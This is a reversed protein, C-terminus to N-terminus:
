YHGILRGRVMVCADPSSMCGGPGMHNHQSPHPAMPLGNEDTDVLVRGDYSVYQYCGECAAASELRRATPGYAQQTPSYDM